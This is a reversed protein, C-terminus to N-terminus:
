EAFVEALPLALGPLVEGGELTGDPEVWTTEGGARWVRASRLAPHIVWVMRTGARLYDQVKADLDTASESPSAIEVALDPAGPFYGTIPEAPLRSARVFAIDPARVTDPESSLVFGADTGVVRGLSHERAYDRLAGGLALAVEGHTFGSPTMTALEGRVLECREDEPM